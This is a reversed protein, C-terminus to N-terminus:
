SNTGPGLPSMATHASPSNSSTSHGVCLVPCPYLFAFSSRSDLDLTSCIAINNHAKVSSPPIKLPFRISADFNTTCAHPIPFPYPQHSRPHHQAKLLSMFVRGFFGYPHFVDTKSLSSSRLILIVSYRCAFPLNM